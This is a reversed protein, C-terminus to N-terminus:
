RSIAVGLRELGAIMQSSSMSEHLPAVGAAGAEADELALVAMAATVRAQGQGSLRAEAVVRKGDRVQVSLAFRRPRQKVFALPREAGPREVLRRVRASRAVLRLFVGSPRPLLRVFTTVEAGDLYSALLERDAFRSPVADVSPRRQGASLRQAAQNSWARAEPGYEDAIHLDIIQTVSSASRGAALEVTLATSLGPAAGAGVRGHEGGRRAKEDLSLLARV